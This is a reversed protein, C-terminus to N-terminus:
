LHALEGTVMAVAMCMNYFRRDNMMMVAACTTFFFFVPLLRVQFYGYPDMAVLKLVM